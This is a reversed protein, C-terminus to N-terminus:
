RMTRSWAERAALAAGVLGADDGLAARRILAPRFGPLLRARLTAEIGGRMQELLASVGGGVVIRESDYAHQLNAFGVGLWEAMEELLALATPDGEAAATGVHRPLVPLGDALAALRSGPVARAQARAALAPGSALAQWCGTRGCACRVPQETLRTHGLEGALGSAGRLLRGEAVIGAGIGTSVTVYAVNDSGAGAGARWEGICAAKADNELVVPLGTAERLRAALPVGGWGPLAPVGLVTGAAPDITGPVGVGLARIGPARTAPGRVAGILAVMQAIVAEPGSRDTERREASLVQGAADVLAVRLHTGGLDIGLFQATDATM